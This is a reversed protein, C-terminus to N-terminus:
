QAVKSRCRLIPDFTVCYVQACTTSLRPILSSFCMQHSHYTIYLIRTFYKTIGIATDNQLVDPQTTDERPASILYDLTIGPGLIGDFIAICVEVM